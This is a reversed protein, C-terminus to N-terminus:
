PQLGINLTFYRCRATESAQSSTGDVEKAGGEVEGYGGDRLRLHREWFGDRFVGAQCAEGVATSTSVKNGLERSLYNSVKYLIDVGGWDVFELLGHVALRFGIGAMLAKDVEAPSAVGEEVLRIAENMLVAQLRASVYGPSDGCVVPVKGLKKLFDVTEDLRKRSTQQSPAVEVLPILEAPNIWHTVLFREPNKVYAAMHSPRISSSTSALVANEAMEKSIEPLLKSKVEMDEPLAEVVHFAEDLGEMGRVFEVRELVTGLNEKLLGEEALLTLSRTILERARELAKM